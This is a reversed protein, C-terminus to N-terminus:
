SIKRVKIVLWRLWKLNDAELKESITEVWPLYKRVVGPNNDEHVTKYVSPYLCNKLCVITKIESGDHKEKELNMFKINEDIRDQKTNRYRIKLLLVNMIKKSQSGSHILKVIQPSIVSKDVPIKNETQETKKQTRLKLITAFLLISVLSATFFTYTSCCLFFHVM